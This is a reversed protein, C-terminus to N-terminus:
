KHVTFQSYLCRNLRLRLGYSKDVEGRVLVFSCQRLSVVPLYFITVRDCTTKKSKESIATALIVANAHADPSIWGISM